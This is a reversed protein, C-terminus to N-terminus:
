DDLPSPAIYLEGRRVKTENEDCEMMADAGLSGILVGTMLYDDQKSGHAKLYEETAVVLNLRADRVPYLCAVAIMHEAHRGAGGEITDFMFRFFNAIDRRGYQQFRQVEPQRDPDEDVLVQLALERATADGSGVFKVPIFREAIESSLLHQPPVPDFEAM